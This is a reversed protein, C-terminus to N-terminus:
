HTGLPASTLCPLKIDLLVVAPNDPKRSEYKGTQFVFELAEAGDRVVAVSNPIKLKKVVRLILAEDDPNDEVILITRDGM